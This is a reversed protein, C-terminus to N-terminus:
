QRFVVRASFLYNWTFTAALSAAKAFLPGWAGVLLAVVLTSIALAALNGAVFLMFQRWSGRRTRDRFTWSRNLVFSLGIGASYSVVNAAVAPAGAVLTLFSFIAVDLGTNAIGVAGFRLARVISGACTQARVDRRVAFSHSFTAGHDLTCRRM